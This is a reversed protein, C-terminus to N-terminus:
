HKVPLNPYDPSTPNPVIKLIDKNHIPNFYDLVMQYPYLNRSKNDKKIESGRLSAWNMIAQIMPGSGKKKMYIDIDPGLRDDTKLDAFSKYVALSKKPTTADVAKKNTEPDKSNTLFARMDGFLTEHTDTKGKLYATEIQLNYYKNELDRVINDRIIFADKLDSILQTHRIDMNEIVKLIVQIDTSKEVQKPHFHDYIVKKVQTQYNLLKQSIAPNVKSSNIKVLWIYMEELNLCTTEQLRNGALISIELIGTSLLPDSTIKSLQNAWQIGLNECIRKMPVFIEGDKEIAIISDGFFNIEAVNQM